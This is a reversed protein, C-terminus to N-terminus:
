KSSEKEANEIANLRKIKARALMENAKQNNYIGGVLPVHGMIGKKIEFEDKPKNKGEEEKEKLAERYLMRERIEEESLDPIGSDKREEAIYEQSPYLEGHKFAMHDLMKDESKTTKGCMECVYQDSM